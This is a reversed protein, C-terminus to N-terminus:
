IDGKLLYLNFGSYNVVEGTANRKRFQKAKENWNQRDAASLVRSWKVAGRAARARNNM